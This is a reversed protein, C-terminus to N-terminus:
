LRRSLKLALLIKRRVCMIFITMTAGYTQNRNHQSCSSRTSCSRNMIFYYAGAGSGKVLLMGNSVSVSGSKGVSGIDMTASNLLADPSYPFPCASGQFIAPCNYYSCHPNPNPLACTPRFFLKGSSRSYPFSQKWNCLNQNFTTAGFFMNDMTVVNSVNWNSISRNFSKANQFMSQMYQVNSVNWNKIDASFDGAEEFMANMHVVKSVDWGAINANFKKAGRFMAEMNIVNKTDWQSIDANFAAAGAFLMKM